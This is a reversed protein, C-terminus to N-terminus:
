YNTILLFTIYRVLNNNIMSQNDILFLLVIIKYTPSLSTMAHKYQVIHGVNEEKRM